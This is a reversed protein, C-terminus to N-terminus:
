RRGGTGKKSATAKKSNGSTGARGNSSSKTSAKGNSGRGNAGSKSVTGSVTRGNGSTKTVPRSASSRGGTTKKLGSGARGNTGSSASKKNGSASRVTSNSSKNSASLKSSSSATAKRGSTSASGSKGNSSAGNRKGSGNGNSSNSGSRKANANRTSGGELDTAREAKTNLRGVALSTLLDDSKYEENLTEELLSVVKPLNLERAFARATGYGSIEYHEIKQASAIIAADMVEPSMEEGMMKEGEKILGETGKCKDSGSFLRSFFGKEEINEDPTGLLKKVQDLRSKQTKTVKLHNSLANKLESNNANEIMKPLAEIIQEEASYLDMIEHKLLDELNILTSM